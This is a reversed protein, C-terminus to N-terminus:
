KFLLAKKIAATDEANLEGDSCADAAATHIISQIDALYKKMRILDIIDVMGDGTVDCLMYCDANIIVPYSPMTFTYVGQGDSVTQIRVLTNGDFGIVSVDGANFDTDAAVTFTVTDGALANTRDAIIKGGSLTDSVGIQFRDDSGYAGGSLDTIKINKFMMGNTFCHLYIRGGSYDSVTYSYPTDGFWMTVTKGVVRLRFTYWKELDPYTDPYGEVKNNKINYTKVSRNQDANGLIKLTGEQELMGLYGSDYYSDGVKQAGFGVSVWRWTKVTNNYNYDFEIEFDTYEGDFYLAAAGRRSSVSAYGSKSDKAIVGKYPVDWIDTSDVAKFLTNGSEDLAEIYEDAAVSYTAFSALDGDNEPHIETINNKRIVGASYFEVMKCGDPLNVVTNEGDVYFDTYESGNVNVATAKFGYVIAKEYGDDADKKLAFATDSIRDLAFDYGTDAATLLRSTSDKEPATILLTKIDGSEKMSMNESLNLATVTGSKVYVPITDLEAKATIVGGGSVKASSWLDYWTGSPLTVKRSTAGATIVPAVLLNDCFMYQDEVGKVADEDPFAMAMHQSMPVGTNGNALAASYIHDILVDRANYYDIFNQKAADSYTWPLGDNTTGHERMLPTFTSFQVWRMYLEDTPRGSLGGIDAGYISLGSASATILGNLQQTLGYWAAKQDGGFCAAYRWSGASGSRQFLVFDDGLLNSMAESHAKAYYYSYLNHMEDGTKGNYFLTDQAIYEGMDVMYGRMGQAVKNKFFNRVFTSALPNSFDIHASAANGFYKFPNSALKVLPMDLPACDLYNHINNYTTRGSTWLLGKAGYSRLVPMVVDSCDIFEGEGYVAYPVTGMNKYGELIETVKDAVAQKKLAATFEVGQAAATEKAADIASDYINRNSGAWYGFAWRPPVFNKGTISTYEQMNDTPNGSFIYMDLIDGDFDFSYVNSYTYGIDAEANYTSNFFVTYGNTSHLVPVNSYSDTKDGTSGEAHYTSDHNWLTVTYGNQNVANYREGLGYFKEGSNIPFSYKIRALEGDKYGFNLNESSLAVCEKGDNVTVIRWATGNSVFRVTENGSTMNVTDSVTEYTVTNLGEPEFFGTNEGTIRVGGTKPFTVSIPVTKGNVLTNFSFRDDAKVVDSVTQSKYSDVEYEEPWVEITHESDGYLYRTLKIDKMQLYQTNAFMYAYGTTDQPISVSYEDNGDFSIYCMNGVVRVTMSHWITTDLKTKVQATYTDNTGSYRALPDQDASRKMHLRIRGEQEIVAFYSDKQFCDGINEAGFGMGMWKYSGNVSTSSFRYKATFEFDDYKEPFYLLAAGKYGSGGAYEGVGYRELTGNQSNIRWYKSADVADILSVGNEDKAGFAETNSFGYSTFNEAVDSIDEFSYHTTYPTSYSQLRKVTFNKFQMNQTYCSLYVYGGNYSDSLQKEATVSKEAGDTGTYTYTVTLKRDLVSVKFHVWNGTTTCFTQFDNYKTSQILPAQTSENYIRVTGEKEVYTYYGDNIYHGGMEEAGFGLGAWRYSATGGIHYDYEVEFNEYFDRLYLSGASTRGSGGSYEGSGVRKFVGDSVQWTLAPDCEKYLPVGNEDVAEIVYGTPTYYSRFNKRIDDISNFAYTSKKMEATASFGASCAATMVMMFALFLSVARKFRFKM